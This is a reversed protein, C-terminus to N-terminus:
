SWYLKATEKTTKKLHKGKKFITYQEKSLPEIIHFPVSFDFGMLDLKLLQKRECHRMGITRILLTKNRLSEL